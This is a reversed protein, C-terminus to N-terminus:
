CAVPNTPATTRTADTDTVPMVNLDEKANDLM